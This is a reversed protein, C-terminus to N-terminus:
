RCVQQVCQLIPLTEGLKGARQIAQGHAAVALWYLLAACPHPLHSNTYELGSVATEHCVVRVATGRPAVDKAWIDRGVHILAHNFSHTQLRSRRGCDAHNVM